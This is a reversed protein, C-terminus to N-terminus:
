AEMLAGLRGVADSHFGSVILDPAEVALGLGGGLLKAAAQYAMSETSGAETQNKM